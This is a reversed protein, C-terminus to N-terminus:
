PRRQATLAAYASPNDSAALFLRFTKIPPCNYKTADMDKDYVYIARPIQSTKFEQAVRSVLLYQVKRDFWEKLKRM